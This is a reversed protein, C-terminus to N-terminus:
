DEPYKYNDILEKYKEPIKSYSRVEHSSQWCNLYVEEIIYTKLHGTWDYLICFGWGVGGEEIQFFEGDGREDVIYQNVLNQVATSTYFKM